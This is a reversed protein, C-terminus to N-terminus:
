ISYIDHKSSLNGFTPLKLDGLERSVLGLEVILGCRVSTSQFMSPPGIISAGQRYAWGWMQVFHIILNPPGILTPICYVSLPNTTYMVRSPPYCCFVDIVSTTQFLFSLSVSFIWLDGPVVRSDGTNHGVTELLVFM